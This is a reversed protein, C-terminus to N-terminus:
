TSSISLVKILATCQDENFMAIHADEESLKMTRRLWKYADNRSISKSKWLLDFLRHCEKRLERLEKNALTGLPIITGKHTGVFTNCNPFNNCLYIWGYDKGNYVISSNELTVLAGCNPCITPINASM